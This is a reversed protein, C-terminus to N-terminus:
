KPLFGAERIAPLHARSVPIDPGHRMTLRARDGERTAARVQDTAIWHSRHVQLGPTAGVERMADSLRLLVMEEGKTTRIRVYHDEVSLSVLPGRKELPLRDLLPPPATAGSQSQDIMESVLTIILAIALITGIFQPLDGMEPVVGFSVANIALVVLTVGVGTALGVLGLAPWRPLRARLYPGLFAGAFLGVSYTAVVVILWYILRPGLRLMENTDFPGAIGLIAAVGLLGALTAPASLHSRIRRLASHPPKPNM